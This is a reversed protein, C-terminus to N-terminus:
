GKYKSATVITSSAQSPPPTYEQQSANHVGMTRDHHGLSLGAGHGAKAPSPTDPGRAVGQSLPSPLGSPASELAMSRTRMQSVTQRGKSHKAIVRVMDSAIDTDQILSQVDESLLIELIRQFQPRSHQPVVHETHPHQLVSNIIEHVYSPRELASDTEEYMYALPPPPLQAFTPNARLAEPTEFLPPAQYMKEILDLSDQSLEVQSVDAPTATDVVGRAKQLDAEMAQLQERIPAIEELQKRKMELEAQRAVKVRREDEKIEKQKQVLMETHEMEAVEKKKAQMALAKQQASIEAAEQRLAKYENPTTSPFVFHPLDPYREGDKLEVFLPLSEGKRLGMCQFLGYWESLTQAAEVVFPLVEPKHFPLAHKVPMHTLATLHKIM